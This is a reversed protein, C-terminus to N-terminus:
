VITLYVVAKSCTLLFHVELIRRAIDIYALAFFYPAHQLASGNERVTAHCLAASREEYPIHQLSGDERVAARCLAVSQEEYPRM